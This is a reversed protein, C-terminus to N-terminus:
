LLPTFLENLAISNQVWANSHENKQLGYATITTLFISKKTKTQERFTEVKYRLEEAYRKEIFSTHKVLVGEALVRIQYKRKIVQIEKKRSIIEDIM